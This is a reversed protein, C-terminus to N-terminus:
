PRLKKRLEDPLVDRHVLLSVTKARVYSVSMYVYGKLRGNKTGWSNKAMSYRTGKRDRATGVLHM